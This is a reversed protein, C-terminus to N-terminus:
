PSTTEPTEAHFVIADIGQHDAPALRAEGDAEAYGVL